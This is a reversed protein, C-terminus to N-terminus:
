VLKIFEAFAKDIRRRDVIVAVTRGSLAMNKLFRKKSSCLIERQDAV